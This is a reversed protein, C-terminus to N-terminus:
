SFPRRRFRGACRWITDERHLVLQWSEGLDLAAAAGTSLAESAPMCGMAPGFGRADGNVM